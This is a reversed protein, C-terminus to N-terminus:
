DASQEEVRDKPNKGVLILSKKNMFIFPDRWLKAEETEDHDDLYDAYVGFAHLNPDKLVETRLVDKETM